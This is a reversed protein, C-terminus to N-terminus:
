TRFRGTRDISPTVAAIDPAAATMGSSRAADRDSVSMPRMHNCGNAINIRLPAAADDKEEATWVDEDHKQQSYIESSKRKIVDGEKARLKEREVAYVAGPPVRGSNQGYRFLDECTPVVFPRHSDERAGIARSAERSLTSWYFTSPQHDHWKGAQRMEALDKTVGFSKKHDAISKNSDFAFLEPAYADFMERTFRTSQWIGHARSFEELAALKLLIAGSLHDAICHAIASEISTHYMEDITGGVRIGKKRLWHIDPVYRRRKAQSNNLVLYCNIGCVLCRLWVDIRDDILVAGGYAIIIPAKMDASLCVLSNQSDLAINAGVRDVHGDKHSQHGRFSALCRRLKELDQRWQESRPIASLTIDTFGLHAMYARLSMVAAPLSFHTVNNGADFSPVVTQYTMNQTGSFDIFILLANLRCRVM